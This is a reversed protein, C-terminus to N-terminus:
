EAAVRRPGGSDKRYPEIRLLRAAVMPTEVISVSEWDQIGDAVVSDHNLMAEPNNFAERCVPVIRNLIVMDIM